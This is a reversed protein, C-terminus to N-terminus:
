RQERKLEDRRESVLRTLEESTRGCFIETRTRGAHTYLITQEFGTPTVTVPSQTIKM